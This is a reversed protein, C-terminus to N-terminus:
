ALRRLGFCIMAVIFFLGLAFGISRSAQWETYKAYTAFERPICTMLDHTPGEPSREKVVWHSGDPCSTMSPVGPPSRDSM